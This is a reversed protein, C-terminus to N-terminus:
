RTVATLETLLRRIAQAFEIPHDHYAAHTGPTIEVDRGLRKRRPIVRWCVCRSYQPAARAASSRRVACPRLWSDLPTM